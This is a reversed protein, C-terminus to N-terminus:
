WFRPEARSANQFRVNQFPVGVKVWQVLGSQFFRDFFVVGAEDFLFRSGFHDSETRIPDTPKRTSGMSCSVRASRITSLSWLRRVAIRVRGRGACGTIM